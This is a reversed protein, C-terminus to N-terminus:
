KRENLHNAQSPLQKHKTHQPYTNLNLAILHIIHLYARTLVVLAFQRFCSDQFISCVVGTRTNYLGCFQEIVCEM